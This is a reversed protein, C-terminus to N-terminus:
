TAWPSCQYVKFPIYWIKQPWQHPLLTCPYQVFQNLLRRGTDPKQAALTLWLTKYQLNQNYCPIRRQQWIFRKVSLLVSSFTDAAFIRIQIWFSIIKWKRGTFYIDNLVSLLRIQLYFSYIHTFGSIWRCTLSQSLCISIVSICPNIELVTM